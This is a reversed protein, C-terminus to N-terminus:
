IPFPFFLFLFFALTKLEIPIDTKWSNDVLYWPPSVISGNFRAIFSLVAIFYVSGTNKIHIPTVSRYDNM